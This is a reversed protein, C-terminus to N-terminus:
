ATPHSVLALLARSHHGRDPHGLPLPVTAICRLATPTVVDRVCARLAKHSAVLGPSCTLAEELLALAVSSPMNPASLWTGQSGEALLCLDSLLHVCAQALPEARPAQTPDGASSVGAACEAALQNFVVSVAQRLVAGATGQVTHPQTPKQAWALQFCLWLTMQLRPPM